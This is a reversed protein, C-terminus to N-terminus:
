LPIPCLAHYVVTSQAGVRGTRERAGFHLYPCALVSVGPIEKTSLTTAGISASLYAHSEDAVKSQLHKTSSRGELFFIRCFTLQMM